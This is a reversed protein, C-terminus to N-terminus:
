CDERTVPRLNGKEDLKKRLAPANRSLDDRQTGATHQAPSSLELNPRSICLRTSINGNGNGNVLVGKGYLEGDCAGPTHHNKPLSRNRRLSLFSPLASPPLIPGTAPIMIPLSYRWGASAALCTLCCSPSTRCSPLATLFFFTVHHPTTCPDSGDCDALVLCRTPRGPGAFVIRHSPDVRDQRVAATCLSACQMANSQMLALWHLLFDQPGGPQQSAMGFGQPTL